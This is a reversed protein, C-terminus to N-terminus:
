IKKIAKKTDKIRFDYLTGDMYSAYDTGREFDGYEHFFVTRSEMQIKLDHCIHQLEENTLVRKAFVRVYDKTKDFIELTDGGAFIANTEDYTRVFPDESVTTDRPVTNQEEHWKGCHVTFLVLMLIMICIPAIKKMDICNLTM